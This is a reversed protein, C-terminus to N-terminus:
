TEFSELLDDPLPTDFDTSIIVEGTATGPKRVKPQKRFPIIRAVPKGSKAIIIEEGSMVRTLLRSQHTKAENINVIKEM